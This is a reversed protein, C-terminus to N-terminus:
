LEDPRFRERFGDLSAPMLNRLDNWDAAYARLTSPAKAARLFGQV